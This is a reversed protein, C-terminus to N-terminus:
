QSRATDLYMYDRRFLLRQFAHHPRLDAGEDAPQVLSLADDKVQAFRYSAPPAYM